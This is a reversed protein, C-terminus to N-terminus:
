KIKDELFQILRTIAVELRNIADDSHALHNTVIKWNAWLSVLAISALGGQVLVQIIKEDM